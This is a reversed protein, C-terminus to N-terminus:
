WNLAYNGLKTTEFETSLFYDIMLELIGQVAVNTRNLLDICMIASPM